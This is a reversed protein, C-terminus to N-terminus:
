QLASQMLGVLMAGDPTVTLGEMGRNALRKALEAPLTGDFPSLRSGIQKGNADFHTIFPGYEDSVWFTGDALAVLGESDYGNADAPLVTGNLDTITEGTNAQSNVRGNYPTGNAAQLPIMQELVAQDGTLKFKGIAPTFSPIPEVKTGNPGDVNPGRDTLGYFEDTSGPVRALSSGFGGATINVGGITALPPLATSFLQVAYGPSANKATYTFTDQGVFGPAPTYTFTGDANFSLTGHSTSTHGFISLPAGTDNALVGTGGVVLPTGAETSYHDAVANPMARLALGVVVPDHDSIRFEDANFLSAV